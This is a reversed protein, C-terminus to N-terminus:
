VTILASDNKKHAESVHTPSIGTPANLPENQERLATAIQDWTISSTSNLAVTARQFMPNPAVAHM